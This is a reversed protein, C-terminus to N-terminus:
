CVLHFHGITTQQLIMLLCPSFTTHFAQVHYIRYCTISDLHSQFFNQDSHYLQTASYKLSLPVFRYFTVSDTLHQLSFFCECDLSSLHLSDTLQQLLFLANVTWHVWMHLLFWQVKLIILLLFSLYTCSLEPCSWLSKCWEHHLKQLFVGIVGLTRSTTSVKEWLESSHRKWHPSPACTSTPAARYWCCCCRRLCSTTRTATWRSTCRCWTHTSSVFTWMVTQLRSVSTMSTIGTIFPHLQQQLWSALLFLFHERLYGNTVESTRVQRPLLLGLVYVWRKRGSM